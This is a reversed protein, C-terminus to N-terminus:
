LHREIRARISPPGYRQCLEKLRPSEVSGPNHRLLEVIDALDRAERRADNRIAHLKLAILHELSPVRLAEGYLAHTTGQELMPDFTAVDVLLLDVDVMQVAPHTYRVFNDSRAAEQYGAAVLIEHLVAGIQDSALCDIDLTQRTVGHVQLAHGGVLLARSGRKSLAGALLQLTSEM